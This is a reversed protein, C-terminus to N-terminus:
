EWVRYKGSPSPLIRGTVAAMAQGFTAANQTVKQSKLWKRLALFQRNDRTNWQYELEKEFGDDRYREFRMLNEESVDRAIMTVTGNERDTIRIDIVEITM